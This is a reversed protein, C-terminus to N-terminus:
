PEFGSTPAISLEILLDVCNLVKQKTPNDEVDKFYHFIFTQM